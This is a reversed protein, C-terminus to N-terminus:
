LFGTIHQVISVAALTATEARLINQGLGVPVWGHQDAMDVEEESLGGEPGILVAIREAASLGKIDCLRRSKEVEWFLLKADFDRESIGAVGEAFSAPTSITMPVARRCQKCASLGIRQWRALKRAAADATLRGQCRSSQLPLLSAVGLETCKQVLTDMKEKKLIAQYLYLGGCPRHEEEVIDTIEASVYRDLQLIKGLYVAGSGDFLEVEAGEKLRLVMRIHRSEEQSFVVRKGNRCSPDFFFRRM